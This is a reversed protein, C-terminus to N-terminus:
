AIEVEVAMPRRESMTRLASAIEEAAIGGSELGRVVIDEISVIGRLRGFSDLVPLRRVRASRMTALATHVTDTLTVTVLKRTM